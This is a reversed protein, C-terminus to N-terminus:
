YCNRSSARVYEGSPYRYWCRGEYWYFGGRRPQAQSGIIAGTAAGIGAGVAAGRGGGAAGGIIAGAAGGLLAGGRVNDQAAAQRLPMAAALTLLAVAGILRIM